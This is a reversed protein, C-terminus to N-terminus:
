RPEIGRLRLVCHFWASDDFRGGRAGFYKSIADRLGYDGCCPAVARLGGLPETVDVVVGYVLFENVEWILRLM